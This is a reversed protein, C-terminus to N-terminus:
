RRGAARGWGCGRSRAPSAAWASWPCRPQPRPRGRRGSSTLQTATRPRTVRSRREEVMPHSRREEVMPHRREEVMPHTLRGVNVRARARLRVGRRRHPLRRRAQRLHQVPAPRRDERQAGARRRDPPQQPRLRGPPPGRGRPRDPRRPACRTRAPEPWTPWRRRASRRFVARAATLEREASSTTASRWSARGTLLRVRAAEYPRDGPGLAPAGQAPLPARRRRRRRGARGRGIAQAAAAALVTAGLSTALTLAGRRAARAEDVADSPSCCTSPPPCCAAASSPVPPRARAPSRRRSRRRVGAARWGSCRSAPSPTSAAARGRAPLGRRRADYEGRLRLVDGTEVDTLGVADPTGLERYREAALAFERLADDWAGRLRMLQGRHVSCQGTFALLGPQAACWRDLASTWEAVRGFDGIEQCGEIATCYVNGAIVPSVEGAVM